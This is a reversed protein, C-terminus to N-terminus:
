GADDHGRGYALLDALAALDVPKVLHGGFGADKSRQIDHDQGYGSIAILLCDAFEPRKRIHEALDYGNMVPMALDLLMADPRYSELAKLAAEGSSVTLAEHDDLRLVAVLSQGADRNDDVILVRKTTASPKSRTAKPQEVADTLPFRV